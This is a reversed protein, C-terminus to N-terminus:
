SRRSWPSSGPPTRSSGNSSGTSRRWHRSSRAPPNFLMIIRASAQKIIAGVMFDVGLQIVQDVISQPDLKEKIMEYIGEPGKEILFSVMSYVKEILAVNKAGILKVLIKRINPWTIGMLQLFFTVISKVSVDKPVQVDKLGGLLWELFGKLLHTGFNSFFLGFGHALGQLLHNAFGLPDDAIDKIVKKIKAVVAWFSAPPIGLLELLGNIIFKVPDEIFRSVANVIRGILGGAKKRLEAIEARVEDVAESSSKILEKNFNDRTAVVDNHLQDLQADFKAKEQEATARMSEPLDDYLKAIRERANTIILDCAAIVANVKTSIETLKKIVGEAFANEAETYAKEAWGPLGTVVDWVGVFFGGVGSHREDVRQQVPKLDAKFQAALLDKAQNWEAMATTPLDKLQAAVLTKANNFTKQAEAATKARLSEESGVMAVQRSEDRKETGARSAELAALTRAGLAAMDGEAKALAQKQGALVKAPDEKAAQDLEGQAARAEAVPGTQILEAPATHMGADEAKKRADAADRDLSVDKAPVADPTAAQADVPATAAVEPQPPLAQGKAPAAAPPADSMPGYNGQVKKTESDVTANLQEGANLAAGEPEAEMLADEDPPRKKRIVERIREGLKVIEPSPGAKVQAILAAQAKAVAEADPESVAKQADQVQSAGGPLKGHASAARGARAQAGHIRRMTAPSPGAPPEPMHLRVAVAPTPAGEGGAPGPPGADPAGGDAGKGGQPAAAAPAAEEPGAKGPAATAPTTGEPQAAAGEPPGAASVDGAGSVDATGPVESAGAPQAGPERGIDTGPAAAERPPASTALPPASEPMPRRVPAQVPVAAPPPAAMRADPRALAVTPAATLRAVPATEDVGAQESRARPELQAPAPPVPISV